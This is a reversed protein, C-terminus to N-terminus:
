DIALGITKVIMWCCLGHWEVTQFGLGVLNLGTKLVVRSHGGERTAPGQVQVDFPM